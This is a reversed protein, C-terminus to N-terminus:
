CYLLSVQSPKVRQLTDDFRTAFLQRSRVEGLMFRIRTADVSSGYARKMLAYPGFSDEVFFKNHPTLSSLNLDSFCTLTAVHASANM